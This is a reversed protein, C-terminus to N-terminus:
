GRGKAANAQSRPLEVVKGPEAKVLRYDYGIARLVAKVTAHQPRRTKGNFWNYLTTTTVGSKQEIFLYSVGAENIADRIEYIIPDKDRFNYSKYVKLGAM